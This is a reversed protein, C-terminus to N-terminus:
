LRNEKNLRKWLEKAVLPIQRVQCFHGLEEDFYIGNITQLASSMQYFLANNGHEDREPLTFRYGCGVSSYHDKHWFRSAQRISEEITDSVVETEIENGTPDVRFWRYIKPDLQRLHLFTTGRETSIKGIHMLKPMATAKTM